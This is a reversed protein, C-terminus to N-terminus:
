VAEKIPESAPAAAPRERGVSDVIRACQLCQVYDGYQDENAYMDGRCATCAKFYIKTAIIM